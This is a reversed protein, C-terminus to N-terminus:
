ISAVPASHHHENMKVQAMIYADTIGDEIRKAFGLISFQGQTTQIASLKATSIGTMTSGGPAAFGTWDCQEGVATQVTTGASPNDYQVEFVTAPDDVVYAVIDTAAIGTPWMNSKTPKGTSDIYECGVFVGLMGVGDTTGTRSGDSTALQIVGADVLKVVDGHFINQAYGSAITYARARIQGSPHYAPRFGTAFSTDSM